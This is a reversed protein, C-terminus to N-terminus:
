YVSSIGVNYDGTSMGCELSDHLNPISTCVLGTGPAFSATELGRRGDSLETTQQPGGARSPLVIAGTIITRPALLVQSQPQLSRYASDGGAASGRGGATSAAAKRIFVCGLPRTQRQHLLPKAGRRLPPLRWTNQRGAHRLANSAAPRRHTASAIAAPTNVKSASLFPAVAVRANGGVVIEGAGFISAGGAADASDCRARQRWSSNRGRRLNLRGRLMGRGCRVSCSCAGALDQVASPALWRSAVASVRRPDSAIIGSQGIFRAPRTRRSTQSPCPTM